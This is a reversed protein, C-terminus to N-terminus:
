PRDIMLILGPHDVLSFSTMLAERAEEEGRTVRDIFFITQDDISGGDPDDSIMM